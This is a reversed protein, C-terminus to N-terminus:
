DRYSNPFMKLNIWEVDVENYFGKLVEKMEEPLLAVTKILLEEPIHKYYAEAIAGAMCGITDTDGGISISKELADAFDNSELFAIIAQPVTVKCTSDFVSTDIHHQLTVNLDYDSISEIFAKIEPKSKRQRALFVAGAIAQAGTWSDPHYHTPKASEKAEQLVEELTAFWYGVPAVRMAAGNGFSVAPTDGEEVMWKKFFKGYGADPYRRAWSKIASAYDKKNILKDAVAMALVTDDSYHSGEEYFVLKKIKIDSHEFVSGAIDGIIGGIM